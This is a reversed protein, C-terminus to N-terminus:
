ETIEVNSIDIDISPATADVRKLFNRLITRLAASGGTAPFLSQLREFDGEFLSVRHKELPIISAKRPM